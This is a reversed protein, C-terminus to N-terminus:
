YEAAIVTAPDIGAASNASGTLSGSCSPEREDYDGEGECEQEREDGSGQAWHRQDTPWQVCVAESAGMSPELDADGDYADLAAIAREVAEELRQRLTTARRARQRHRLSSM